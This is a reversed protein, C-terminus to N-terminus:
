QSTRHAAAPVLHADFTEDLDKRAADIATVRALVVARRTGEVREALAGLRDRESDLLRRYNALHRRIRSALRSSQPLHIM